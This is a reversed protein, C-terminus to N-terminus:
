NLTSKKKSDEVSAQNSVSSEMPLGSQIIAAERLEAPIRNLYEPNQSLWSKQSAKWAEYEEPEDVVVVLRMSFHGQGCIETCALEYNFNPNMTERRMDATSKTATFKFHTMMGPVADMKVRFHPLFVSHLVDKARIKLLVEKGKPLHLEQAKFDDFSNKDSLDLGFENTADIMKFNHKGLLNDKVGPYRATWAFQQGIVEIVEADASAPSTIDNWTRLGRFILLALVIAPVITWVIELVHNDALFTAKRDKKYRYRFTFWFMGVFIITFSFVTIAMTIWFLHDTEKGHISAVPLVYDDFFAYSYWFFGVLSVILFLLFLWANVGNADEDVGEKTGKVVGVLNGIRFIMFLIALVLVVGIGIVVSMM